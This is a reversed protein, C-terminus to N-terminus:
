HIIVRSVFKKNTNGVAIFYMGPSLGQSKIKFNDKVNLKLTKVMRGSIDFMNLYDLPVNRNNQLVINKQKSDFYVFPENSTEFSPASLTLPTNKSLILSFKQENNVLTGKHSIEVTYIGTADEIDIIEINDVANNGKTAWDGSTYLGNNTFKWPYYTTGDKTIKLDLDNVLVPEDYDPGTQESGQPDTWCISIRLDNNNETINFSVVENNSLTSEYIKNEDAIHESAKEIDIYGWGSEPDPGEDVIDYATHCILGKLTASRMYKQNINHYYEQLLLISGTVSPAAMSTGSYQGYDDYSLSSTYIPSILGTGNGTIDPKIRLDNTPGQSSSQNVDLLYFTPTIYSIDKGNAVVLNNKANKEGLLKDYDSAMGGSYTRQGNNGASTVHLYNPYLYLIEDLFVCSGDYTGFYDASVALNGDDDFGAPGYSHNSLLLGDEAESIEETRVNSWDYTIVKAKPAMGKAEAYTGNAVITGAVHTAHDDPDIGEQGIIIRSINNENFEQHGEFALGADWVGVTLNNGELNLNLSGGPQISNTRNTEAAKLNHTQYYIPGFNKDVRMLTVKANAIKPAKINLLKVSDVASSNKLEATIIKTKLANRMTILNSSQQAAVISLNLCLLLM